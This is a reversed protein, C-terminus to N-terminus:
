VQLGDRMPLDRLANYATLSAFADQINSFHILALHQLHNVESSLVYPCLDGVHAAYLQQERSLPLAEWNGCRLHHPKPLTRHM